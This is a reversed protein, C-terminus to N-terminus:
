QSSRRHRGTRRSRRLASARTTQQDPSPPAPFGAGHVIARYTRNPEDRKSEDRPVVTFRAPGHRIMEELPPTEARSDVVIRQDTLDITLWGTMGATPMLAELDLEALTRIGSQDGLRVIVDFHGPVQPAPDRKSRKAPLTWLTGTLQPNLGGLSEGTIILGDDVFDALEARGSRAAESSIRRGLYAGFRGLPTLAEIVPPEKPYKDM